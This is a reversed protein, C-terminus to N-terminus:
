GFVVRVYNEFGTKPCMIHKCVDSLNKNIFIIIIVITIVLISRHISLQYLEGLIIIINKRYVKDIMDANSIAIHNYQVIGTM